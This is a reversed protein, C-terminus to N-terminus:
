ESMLQNYYEVFSDCQEGKLFRPDGRARLNRARLVHFVALFALPRAEREAYARAASLLKRPPVPAGAQRAAGLASVPEACSLLVEAIEEHAGLRALMDLALQAAAPDRHGLSLLQCALPRGDALARVALEGTCHQAGLGHRALSALYATIVQVTHAEDVHANLVRACMDAQSLLVPAPAASRPAAGATNRAVEADAWKRYVSNVEDFVATLELLYKGADAALQQLVRLVTAGGEPRRLLVSVMRPIEEKPINHVLGPPLLSVRWLCGLRADIIYDPQFVVWNSSYMPCPEGHLLAPRLGRGAVVPAAASVEFVQSTQSSQHHVVVLGSVAHLAFRGALGTRLCRAAGGSLPHLVVETPGPAAGAAAHRFVACYTVDGVRLVSVDREVVPRGAELELKQLKTITSNTLLFPQLLTGNNGALVVTSSQACWSFWAGSFSTSKLNKLLKKEPFVQLLEIGHDTIFAIENVRPWVFGLIKANKWKCTHTYEVNTPALDKFNVFEVTANQSDQNRQISLVRHDPSFKISLIPGKDEMRFSTCKTEDMGTVTVGTVGGSRVTFVQGNTDDFFVNTAPSDVDFRKPHDSLALYYEESDKLCFKAM